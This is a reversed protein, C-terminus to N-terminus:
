RSLRTLLDVTSKRGFHRAIDAASQGKSNKINVKAGSSVLIRIVDNKEGRAAAMLATQKFRGFTADLDVTTKVLIKVLEAHGQFAAFFM